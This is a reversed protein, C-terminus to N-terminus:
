APRPQYVALTKTGQRDLWREHEQGQLREYFANCVGLADEPLDARRKVKFSYSMEAALLRAWPNRGFGGNVWLAVDVKAEIDHKKGQFRLKGLGTQLQQVSLDSVVMVKEEPPALAALGPFVAGWGAVTTPFPDVLKGADIENDLAYIRHMGPGGEAPLIVEQKHAVGDADDLTSRVLGNWAAAPDDRRHKLTLNDCGGGDRWRLLYSARNFAAGATDLFQVVTHAVDRPKPRWKWKVGRTAAAAPALVERAYTAATDEFSTFMGASLATKYEWALVLDAPDTPPKTM